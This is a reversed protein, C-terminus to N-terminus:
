ESKVTKKELLKRMSDTFKKSTQKKQIVQDVLFLLAERIHAAAELCEEDSRVHIGESLQTHLIALPNINDPRLYSPLLDKVLAIKEQAIPSSKSKDLANKYVSKEEESLLDHISELLEDIINEVIRRYYAYAGIGYGQSECTVGKQYEDKHNGLLKSLEKDIAIRWPPYQGVKMVFTLNDDFWLLFNRQFRRCAMCLYDARVVRGKFESKNISTGKRIAKLHEINHLDYYPAMTLFTQESKCVLCYLHIPPPEKIFVYANSDDLSFKRYLPYQEFFEANSM